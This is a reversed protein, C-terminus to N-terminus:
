NSPPLEVFGVTETITLDSSEYTGFNIFDEIGRITEDANSNELELKDANITIEVDIFNYEHPIFETIFVPETGEPPYFPDLYDPLDMMEPDEQSNDANDDNIPNLDGDRDENITLIGDGDDDNDLYDLIGDGDTDRSNELDIATGDETLMVGEDDTPINDGDDDFDYIDLLGDEDTDLTGSPDEIESPIGDDDELTGVTIIDVEGSTSFLEDIVSPETPPIPNCFYSDTVEDDFKRYIIENEGSLDITRTGAESLIPETTTFSLAITENSTPNIKYFLFDFNDCRELTLDTFDLETVVIDGDDCSILATMYILLAVFSFYNKMTIFISTFIRSQDTIIAQESERFSVLNM